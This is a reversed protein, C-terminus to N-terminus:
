RKTFLRYIKNEYPLWIESISGAGPSSSIKIKGGWKKLRRKMNKLGNRNTKKKPNFGVGNDQFIMYFMKNRETIEIKCSTARAHKRLNNILEKFVLYLERRKQLCMERETFKNKIDFAYTIKEQEFIQSCYRRMNAVLGNLNSNPIKLNWVIEDLAESSKQVEKEIRTLHAKIENNDVVEKKAISSIFYINTLSSGIEDHLDASINNKVNQIDKLHNVRLKYFIFVIIVILILLLLIVGWNDLFSLYELNNFKNTQIQNEVESEKLTFVSSNKFVLEEKLHFGLIENIFNFNSHEALDYVYPRSIAFALDLFWLILTFIANLGGLRM